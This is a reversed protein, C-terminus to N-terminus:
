KKYAGNKKLFMFIKRATAMFKNWGPCGPRLNDRSAVNEQFVIHWSREICYENTGVEECLWNYYSRLSSTRSRNVQARKVLEELSSNKVARKFYQVGLPCAYSLELWAILEEKTLPKM